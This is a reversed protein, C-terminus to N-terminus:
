FKFYDAFSGILPLPKELGQSANILGIILLVFLAIDLFPTAILGLIPVVNEFLWVFIASLFLVLGQKVHFKVFPDDKHETLLPIFFVVYAIVALGVNKEKKQQQPEPM